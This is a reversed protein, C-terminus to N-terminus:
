RFLLVLNFDIFVGDSNVISNKSKKVKAHLQGSHVVGGSLIAKLITSLRSEVSKIKVPLYLASVMAM